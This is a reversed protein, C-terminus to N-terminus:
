HSCLYVSRYRGHPGHGRDPCLWPQSRTCVPDGAGIRADLLLKQILQAGFFHHRQGIQKLEPRHRMLQGGFPIPACPNHQAPATRAFRARASFPHARHDLPRHRQVSPATRAHRQHALRNILHALHHNEALAPYQRARGLVPPRHPFRPAFAQDPRIPRHRAHMRSLVRLPQAPRLKIRSPHILVATCRYVFPRVLGVLKQVCLARLALQREKRGTCPILQHLHLIQPRHRAIPFIRCIIRDRGFILPAHQVHAASIDPGIVCPGIREEGIIHLFPAITLIVGAPM